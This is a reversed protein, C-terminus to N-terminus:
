DRQYCFKSFLSFESAVGTSDWRHKEARSLTTWGQGELGPRSAISDPFPIAATRALPWRRAAASSQMAAQVASLAARQRGQPLCACDFAYNSRSIHVGIPCLSMACALLGAPISRLRGAVDLRCRKVMRIYRFM